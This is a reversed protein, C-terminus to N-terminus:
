GGHRMATVALVHMRTTAATPQGMSPLIVFGTARRKPDTPVYLDFLRAEDRQEVGRPGIRDMRDIAPTGPQGAAISSAHVNEFWDSALLICRDSEREEYDVAVTIATTGNVSAALVRVADYHDPPLDVRIPAGSGPAIRLANDGSYPALRFVGIRRDVPLGQVTEDGTRSGDFGDVILSFENQADFWDNADDGPDVVVDEDCLKSLDIPVAVDGSRAVRFTHEACWPTRTGDRTM